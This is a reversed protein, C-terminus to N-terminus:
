NIIKNNWLAYIYFIFLISVSGDPRGGEGGEGSFMVSSLSNRCSM